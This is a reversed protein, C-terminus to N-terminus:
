TMTPKTTVGVDDHKLIHTPEIAASCDIACRCRFFWRDDVETDTTIHNIGSKVVLNSGIDQDISQVM